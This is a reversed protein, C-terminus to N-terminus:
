VALFADSGFAPPAPEGADSPKEVPRYDALLGRWTELTNVFGELQVFFEDGDISRMDLIRCLSFRGTDADRSITAGNTGKFFHNAELMSSLLGELGQPPPEGIDGWLGVFHAMVDNQLVVTMDDVALECTGDGDAKMELGLRGGLNKLLDDFTMM